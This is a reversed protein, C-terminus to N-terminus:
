GHADPAPADAGGTQTSPPTSGQARVHQHFATCTAHHGVMAAADTQGWQRLVARPRACYLAGDRSRVLYVAPSPDLPIPPSEPGAELRRAWVVPKGCYRCPESRLQASEGANQNPRNSM